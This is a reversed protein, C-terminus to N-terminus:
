FYNYGADHMYPPIMLEQETNKMWKIIELRTRQRLPKECFLTVFWGPVSSRYRSKDSHYIKKAKKYEKSNRELKVIKRIPYYSSSEWDIPKFDWDKNRRRITKSM